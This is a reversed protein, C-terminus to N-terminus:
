VPLSEQRCTLTDALKAEQEFFDSWAASRSVSAFRCRRSANTSFNREIETRVIDSPRFDLIMGSCVVREAPLSM